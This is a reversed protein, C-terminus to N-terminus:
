LDELAISYFMTSSKLIEKKEDKYKKRKNEIM